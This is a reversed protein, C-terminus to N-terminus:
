KSIQIWKWNFVKSGALQVGNSVKTVAYQKKSYRKYEKNIAKEDYNDKIFKIKYNGLSRIIKKIYKYSYTNQYVFDQPKGNKYSDSYLYQSLHTNESILTRVFCHKKSTNILKKLPIEINPLHM